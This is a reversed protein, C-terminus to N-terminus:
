HNPLNKRLEELRAKAAELEEELEDCDRHARNPECDPGPRGYARRMNYYDAKLEDVVELMEEYNLQLRRGFHRVLMRPDMM